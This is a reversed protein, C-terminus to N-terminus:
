SGEEDAPQAALWERACMASLLRIQEASLSLDGSAKKLGVAPDWWGKYLPADTGKATVEVAGAGMAFFLTFEVPRVSILVNRM